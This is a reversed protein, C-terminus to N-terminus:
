HGREEPPVESLLRQKSVVVRFNGGDRVVRFRTEFIESPKAGRASKELEAMEKERQQPLLIIFGRTPPLGLFKTVDAVVQPSQEYWYLCESQSLNENTFQLPKQLLKRAVRFSRNSADTPLALAAGLGELTEMYKQIAQPDNSWRFDFDIKWRFLRKERETLPTNPGDGMGGGMGMGMGDGAGGGSGNGAKGQGARVGQNLANVVAKDVQSFVRMRPDGSKIRAQVVPDAKLADPLAAGIDKVENLALKQDPDPDGKPDGGPDNMGAEKNDRGGKQGDKAGGPKGGGGSPQLLRVPKVEVERAPKYGFEIGLYGLILLPGIVLTHVLFSALGSFRAENHPSYREWFQEEPPKPGAPANAPADKAATTM